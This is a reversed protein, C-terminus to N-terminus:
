FKFSHVEGYETVALLCDNRKNFALAYVNKLPIENVKTFSTTEIFTVNEDSGIAIVTQAKDVAISWCKSDFNIKKLEAGTESNSIKCTKDWSVSVARNWLPTGHRGLVLDYVSGNHSFEYKLQKTQISWAKVKHMTGCSYVVDDRIIVRSVYENHM